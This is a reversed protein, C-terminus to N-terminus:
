ITMADFSTVGACMLGCVVFACWNDLRYVYNDCIYRRQLSWNGPCLYM